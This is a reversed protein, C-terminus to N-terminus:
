LVKMADRPKKKNKKATRAERGGREKARETATEKETKTRRVTKRCSETMGRIEREQKLIKKIYWIAELPNKKERSSFRAGKKQHCGAQLTWKVEEQLICCNRKYRINICM